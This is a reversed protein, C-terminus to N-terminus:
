MTLAPTPGTEMFETLAPTLTVSLWFTCEFKPWCVSDGSQFEGYDTNKRNKLITQGITWVSFVNGQTTLSGAIQRILDNRTRNVSPRLKEIETVNCLETPMRLPGNTRIYLEIARAIDESDVTTGESWSVNTGAGQIRQNVKLGRLVAQMPITRSVAPQSMSM